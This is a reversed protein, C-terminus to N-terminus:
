GKKALEIIHSGTGCGVDLVKLPAKGKVKKYVGSIIEAEGAYDKQSYLKDYYSHYSPM